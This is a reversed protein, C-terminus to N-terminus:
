TRVGLLLPLTLTLSHSLLPSSVSSPPHCLTRAHMTEILACHCPCHLPWVLAASVLGPLVGALALLRHRLNPGGDLSELPRPPPSARPRRPRSARLRFNRHRCPRARARRGGSGLLRKKQVEARAVSDGRESGARETETDSHLPPHVDDLYGPLGQGPKNRCFTVSWNM